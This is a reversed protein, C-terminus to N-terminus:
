PARRHVHGRPPPPSPEAILRPPHTGHSMAREFMERDDCVLIGGEGGTLNKSAQLSFASFAGLSGLRRGRYFGGAAQAVDEIM